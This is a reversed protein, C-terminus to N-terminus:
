PEIKTLRKFNQALIKRKDELSIRAFIVKGLQPPAALFPIDSGYIVKEVGAEEVFMEVQGLRARSCALDLYVNEREKAAEMMKEYGSPGGSHGMLFDIEGFKDAVKLAMEVNCTSSGEWTHTLILADNERAFEYVPQYNKGDLPYNHTEPHLKIMRMGLESFCRKLERIVEEPYNPNATAYPLFRGPFERAAAATLDNGSKWDSSLATHSSVCVADIGVCDMVEVMGKAHSRPVYFGGFPGLHGHADIIEVDTLPEGRRAKAVLMDDENTL